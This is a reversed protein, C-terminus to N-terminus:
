FSLIRYLFYLGSFYSFSIFFCFDSDKHRLCLFIQFFSDMSQLIFALYCLSVYYHKIQLYSFLDFEFQRDIYQGQTDSISYKSDILNLIRALSIELKLFYDIVVWLAQICLFNQYLNKLNIQKCDQNEFCYFSRASVVLLM